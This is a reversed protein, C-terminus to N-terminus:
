LWIEKLLTLFPKQALPLIKTKTNKFFVTEFNYIIDTYNLTAVLIYDSNLSSIETLPVTKFGCFEKGKDESTYKGDSVAIINLDSLDCKSLISQFLSGTGYIIITKGQLRKKLRALQKEFKIEELYKELDMDIKYDGSQRFCRIYKILHPKCASTKANGM